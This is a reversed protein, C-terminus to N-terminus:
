LMNRKRRARETRKGHMVGYRFATYVAEFKDYRDMMSLLVGRAEESSIYNKHAKYIENEIVRYEICDDLVEFTNKVGPIQCNARIEERVEESAGLYAESIERYEKYLPNDRNLVLDGSKEYFLTLTGIKAGEEWQEFFNRMQEATLDGLSCAKIGLEDNIVEYM